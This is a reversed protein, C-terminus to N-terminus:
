ATGPTEVEEVLARQVAASNDRSLGGVVITVVVVRSDTVAALAFTVEDEAAVQEGVAQADAVELTAQLRRDPVLFRITVVRLSTVAFVLDIVRQVVDDVAVAGPHGQDELVDIGNTGCIMLLVHDDASLDAELIVGVPNAEASGSSPQGLGPRVELHSRPKEKGPRIRARSTLAGARHVPLNAM